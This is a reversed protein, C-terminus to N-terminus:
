KSISTLSEDGDSEKESGSSNWWVKKPEKEGEMETDSSNDDDGDDEDSDM